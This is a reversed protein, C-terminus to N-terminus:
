TAKVTGSGERTAVPGVTPVPGSPAATPAGGPAATPASGSAATPANGSPATSGGCAVVVAGGAAVASLRLFDRRGVKKGSKM